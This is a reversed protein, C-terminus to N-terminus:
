NQNLFGIKINIVCIQKVKIRKFISIKYNSIKKNQIIKKKKQNLRSLNYDM